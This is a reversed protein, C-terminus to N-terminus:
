QRGNTRRGEWGTVVVTAQFTFVFLCHSCGLCLFRRWRRGLFATTAHLTYPCCRRRFLDTLFLVTWDSLWSFLSSIRRSQTIVASWPMGEKSPMPFISIANLKFYLFQVYIKALQFLLFYDGGMVILIFCRIISLETRRQKMRTNWNHSWFSLSPVASNSSSTLRMKSGFQIYVWYLKFCAEFDPTWTNSDYLAKFIIDM